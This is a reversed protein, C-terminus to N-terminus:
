NGCMGECENKFNQFIDYQTENKFKVQDLPVLSPHLYIPYKVGKKSSNRISKDLDVMSKFVKPENRKLDLWRSDSQYPCFKCASKPPIPFINKKLWTVCDRRTMRKEILPYHFSIWKEQSIKMREMEDLSIGIYIDTPKNRAYKKLGYIKRIESNVVQIKYENTCQRRLISTNGNEDKTFAPISAFRNGSSNTGNILDKLLSGKSAIRIPIGNNDKEWQLMYKLYAYTKKSEAKPDAFIAYDFKDIQNLCSMFYLTVSQVGGGLSLIKM